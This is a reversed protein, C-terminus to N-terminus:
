PEHMLSLWVVDLRRLTCLIGATARFLQALLLHTLIYCPM